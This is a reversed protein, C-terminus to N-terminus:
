LFYYKFREVDESYLITEADARAVRFFDTGHREVAITSKGKSSSYQIFEDTELDVYFLHVYDSALSRAINAYTAGVSDDTIALIVIAVAIAGTIPNTAVKRIFTHVTSGDLLKEDILLPNGEEEAENVSNIFYQVKDEGISSIEFLDEPISEGTVRKMYNRYSHNSRVINLKNDKIEMIAMPLNNFYRSLPANSENALVALDYLNIRGITEYYGAEVPNEFGIQNGKEYKDFIQEVPIPKEYFYGQLKACGIECLFDFLVKKDVVDCVTEFGLATAMLM